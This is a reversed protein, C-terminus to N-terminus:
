GPAALAPSWRLRECRLGQSESEWTKEELSVDWGGPTARARLLTSARTGYRGDPSRMWPSSLWRETELGVGTDPLEHDPAPTADALAQWLLAWPPEGCADARAPGGGVAVEGGAAAATGPAAVVAQMARKLRLAKPWPTDLFANSLAYVGPALAQQQWGPVLRGAESRRNSAWHWQGTAADGVLLNFGACGRVAERALDDLFTAANASGQLWDLPLQGRSRAFAPAGPERVNTLLAVRGSTAVGLWTGGAQLDRGSVISAGRPARWRALPLTPRDLYEDRNSALLLPWERSQGLALAALCM